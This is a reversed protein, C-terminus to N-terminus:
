EEMILLADIKKCVARAEQELEQFSLGLRDPEPMNEAQVREVFWFYVQFALRIYYIDLGRFRNPSFFMSSAAGPKKEEAADVKGILREIKAGLNKYVEKLDSLNEDEWIEPMSYVGKEIDSLHMAAIMVAQKITLIEYSTFRFKCHVQSAFQECEKISCPCIKDKGM